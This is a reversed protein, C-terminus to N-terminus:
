RRIGTRIVTMLYDRWSGTEVEKDLYSFGKTNRFHNHFTALYMGGCKNQNHLGHKEKTINTDPMYFIIKKSPGMLKKTVKFNLIMTNNRYVLRSNKFDTVSELSVRKGHGDILEVGSKKLFNVPIHTNFGYVNWSYSCKMKATVGGRKVKLWVTESKPVLTVSHQVGSRLHLEINDNERLNGVSFRKTRVFSSEYKLIKKIKDSEIMEKVTAYSIIHEQGAEVVDTMSTSDNHVSWVGMILQDETPKVYDVDRSLNSYRDDISILQGEDDTVPKYGIEELSGKLTKGPAIFLVDTKEPTSIIIKALKSSFLKVQDKYSYRTEGRYYYFDDLVIAAEQRDNISNKITNTELNQRHLIHANQSINKEGPVVDFCKVNHNKDKIFDYDSGIIDHAHQSYLGLEYLVKCVKNIGSPSDIGIKIRTIYKGANGALDSLGSIKERATYFPIDKWKSVVTSNEYEELSRPNSIGRGAIKAFHERVIARRLLQNRNLSERENEQAKDELMLEYESKVLADQRVGIGVYEVSVVNIKPYDAVMVRKDIDDPIGDYDSDLTSSSLTELGAGIDPKKSENADESKFACSCMFVLVVIAVVMDKIVVMM